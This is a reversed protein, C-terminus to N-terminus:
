SVTEHAPPISHSALITTCPSKDGQATSGSPELRRPLKQTDANRMLDIFFNLSAGSEAFDMLTEYGAYLTPNRRFALWGLLVGPMIVHDLDNPHPVFRLGVGGTGLMSEITLRVTYLLGLFAQLEDRAQCLEDGETTSLADRLRHPQITTALERLQEDLMGRLWPAAIGIRNRKARDLGLGDIVSNREERDEWATFEGAAIRTLVDTVRELGRRGVLNRVTRLPEPLRDSLMKWEIREDPTFARWEERWTELPQLRTDLQKWIYAPEVSFGEWWLRWLAREPDFRGLEDRMELIRLVQASTGPPYIAGKGHSKGRGPRQSPRPFLGRDRWQKFPGKQFRELDLGPYREHVARLVNEVPEGPETDM